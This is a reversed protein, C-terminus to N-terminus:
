RLNPDILDGFREKLVVRYLALLQDGAVARREASVPADSLNLDSNMVLVRDAAIPFTEVVRKGISEHPVLIRSANEAAQDALDRYRADREYDILEPGWGNLLYPM